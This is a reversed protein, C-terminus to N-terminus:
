PQMQALALEQHSGYPQHFVDDLWDRRPGIRRALRLLGFKEARALLRVGMTEVWVQHADLMMSLTVCAHIRKESAAARPM